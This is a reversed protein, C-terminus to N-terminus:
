VDVTLLHLHCHRGGSGSVVIVVVVVLLPLYSEAIQQLLIVLFPCTVPSSDYRRAWADSLLNVRGIIIIHIVVTSLPYVQLSLELLNFCILTPV